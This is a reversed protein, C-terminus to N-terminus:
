DASRTCQCVGVFSLDLMRHFHLEAQYVLRQFGSEILWLLLWMSAAGKPKVLYQFSLDLTNYHYYRFASTTNGKDM